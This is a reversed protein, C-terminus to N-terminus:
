SPCASATCVARSRTAAVHVQRGRAARDDGGRRGDQRPPVIDVPIGRGNDVVRVAGDAHITVDIHRTGPWRRTSRTTSSRRSSTTCVRRRDVSTCAPGSASRTSGRSSPSRAPTTPRPRLGGAAPGDGAGAAVDGTTPDTNENPNGSDAVFRGKQCLVLRGRRIPPFGRIRAHLLPQTTRCTGRTPPIAMLRGTAGVSIPTQRHRLACRGDQVLMRRSGMYPPGLVSM